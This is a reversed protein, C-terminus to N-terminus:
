LEIGMLGTGCGFDLIRTESSALPQSEQGLKEIATKALEFPDNFGSMDQM